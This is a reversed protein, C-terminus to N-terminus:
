FHLMNFEIGHLGCRCTWDGPFSPQCDGYNQRRLFTRATLFFIPLVEKAYCKEYTEHGPKRSDAWLDDFRFEACTHPPKNLCPMQFPAALEQRLWSGRRQFAAAVAATDSWCSPPIRSYFVLPWCCVVRTLEHLVLRACICSVHRFFSTVSSRLESEGEGKM